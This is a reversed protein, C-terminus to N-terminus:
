HTFGYIFGAIFDNIIPILYLGLWIIGWFVLKKNIGKNFKKWDINYILFGFAIIEPISFLTDIRDDSIRLIRLIGMIIIAITFSIIIIMWTKSIKPKGSEFQDMLEADGKILEDLSIDFLDSIAVVNSFSPLSKGNEWKSISQRSIHLEDALEDQSMGHLKRQNQLQEGIKM